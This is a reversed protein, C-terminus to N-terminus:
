AEWNELPQPAKWRLEGIPPKAFPVGFYTQIGTHTNYNGEITGNEIKIQIPFANGNQSAIEQNIMLLLVSLIATKKM